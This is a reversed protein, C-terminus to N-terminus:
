FAPTFLVLRNGNHRGKLSERSMVRATAPLLRSINGIKYRCIPGETLIRAHGACVSSAWDSLQQERIAGRSQQDSLLPSYFSGNGSHRGKLSERSM